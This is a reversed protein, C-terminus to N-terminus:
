SAPNNKKPDSQVYKRHYYNEDVRKCLTLYNHSPRWVPQTHWTFM